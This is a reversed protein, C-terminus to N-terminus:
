AGRGLERLLAERMAPLPADVGLWIREQEAAQYILMDTGTITGAGIARAERILRTEVPNYVADMVVMDRTLLETPLPSEEAAPHMGVSTTNILIHASRLAHALAEGPLTIAAVERASPFANLLDRRLAEARSLTRNAITLSAAGERLVQACAARAAGGAGLVIVRRGRPSVGADRLTRGVASADTNDARLVGGGSISVTNAAGITEVEGARVTCYKIVETKYPITVALGKFPASPVSKMFQDFCAPSVPQATFRCPLGLAEFSANHIVPSMSHGLPWGIVAYEKMHPDSSPSEATDAHPTDTYRRLWLSLIKVRHAM